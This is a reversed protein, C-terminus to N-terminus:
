GTVVPPTENIKIYTATILLEVANDLEAYIDMPITYERFNLVDRLIRLLGDIDNQPCELISQRLDSASDRAEPFLLDTEKLLSHIKWLSTQLPSSAM